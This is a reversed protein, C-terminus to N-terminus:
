SNAANRKPKAISKKRNSASPPTIASASRRGTFNGNFGAQKLRDLDRIHKIDRRVVFQKIRVLCDASVLPIVLGSPRTVPLIELDPFEIGGINTIIDISFDEILRIVLKGALIHAPFGLLKKQPLQGLATRAKEFESIIRPIAIDVDGKYSAGDGLWQDLAFGGHLCYNAGADQLLKCVKEVDDWTAPRAKKQLANAQQANMDRGKVGRIVPLSTRLITIGPAIM